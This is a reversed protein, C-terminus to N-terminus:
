ELISVFSLFNDLDDVPLITLISDRTGVQQCVHQFDRNPLLQRGVSHFEGGDHFMQAPFSCDAPFDGDQARLHSPIEPANYQGFRLKLWDIDSRDVRSTPNAYVSAACGWRAQGEASLGMLGRPLGLWYLDSLDSLDSIERERLPKDFRDLDSTEPGLDSLDAAEARTRGAGGVRVPHAAGPGPSPV